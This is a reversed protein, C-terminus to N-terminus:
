VLPEADLGLCVGRFPFPGCARHPSHNVLEKCWYPILARRAWQTLILCDVILGWSGMCILTLRLGCRVSTSPGTIALFHGSASPMKGFGVQSSAVFLSASIPHFTGFNLVIFGICSKYKSLRPIRSSDMSKPVHIALSRCRQWHLVDGLMVLTVIFELLVQALTFMNREFVHGSGPTFRRFVDPTRM